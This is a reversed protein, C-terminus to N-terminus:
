QLALFAEDVAKHFEFPELRITALLPRYKSFKMVAPLGAIFDMTAKTIPQYEDFGNYTVTIYTPRENRQSRLGRLPFLLNLYRTETHTSFHIDITFKSQQKVM